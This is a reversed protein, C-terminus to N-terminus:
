VTRVKIVNAASTDIWADNVEVGAPPSGAGQPLEVTLAQVNLSGFDGTSATVSNFTPDTPLEGGGGGGGTGAIRYGNITEILDGYPEYPTLLSTGENVTGEAYVDVADAPRKIDIYLFAAGAPALYTKPLSAATFSGNLAVMTTGNAQYYASYGGSSINIRGFTYSKGAEVPIKIMQWGTGAVIAGTSSIFQDSIIAAPDFLNSGPVLGFGSEQVANDDFYKKNIANPASIPTPVSNGPLLFTAAFPNNALLTNVTAYPPEYDTAAAGLEWQISYASNPTGATTTSTNFRCSVAGAPTTITTPNPYNANINVVTGIKAGGGDLFQCNPNFSNQYGSITYQTSATVPMGICANGNANDIVDGASNIAKGKQVLDVRMKNKGTTGSSATILQVLQLFGSTDIPILVKTYSTGNDVFFAIQGATITLGGFNTYTGVESAVWMRNGQPTGPNTALTASDVSLNAVAGILTKLAEGTAKGLVGDDNAAAFWTTLALAIDPRQPLTQNAM